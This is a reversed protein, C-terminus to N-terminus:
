LKRSKNKSIPDKMLYIRSISAKSMSSIKRNRFTRKKKPYRIKNARYLRM